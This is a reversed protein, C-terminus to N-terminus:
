SINNKDCVKKYAECRWNLEECINLLAKRAAESDTDFLDVAEKATDLLNHLSDGQILVGPYDRGPARMVVFDNESHYIEVVSERKM